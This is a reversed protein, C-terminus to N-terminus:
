EQFRAPGGSYFDGYGPPLLHRFDPNLSQSFIRGFLGFGQFDIPPLLQRFFLLLPLFIGKL